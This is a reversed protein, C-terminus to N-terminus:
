SPSGSPRAQRSSSQREEHTGPDVHAVVRHYLSQVDARLAALDPNLLRQRVEALGEDRAISPTPAILDGREEGHSQVSYTRMDKLLTDVAHQDSHPFPAFSRDYRANLETIVDGFSRTVQEFPTVVMGGLHALVRRHFWEWRRLEVQPDTGEQRVTWSAVADIPDRVILLTPLGMRVAVVLHAPNHMHSAVQTDPNVALFAHLAFTQASGQFGDIVIDTKPTVLRYHPTRVRIYACWLRPFRELVDYVPDRAADRVRIGVNVNSLRWM